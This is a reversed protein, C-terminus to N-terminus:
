HRGDLQESDNNPLFMESLKPQPILNEIISSEMNRM